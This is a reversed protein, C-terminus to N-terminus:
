LFAFISAAASVIGGLIDTGKKQNSAKQQALAGAQAALAAKQMGQYQSAQEQYATENIIGQEGIVQGVLAGQSASSRMIDAASGGGTLGNNGAAAQGQGITQFVQRQTQFQQLKTAQKSIEANQLAYTSAEGYAQAEAADGQAESGFAAAQGADAAANGFGSLLDGAASFGTSILNAM